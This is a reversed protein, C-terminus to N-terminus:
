DLLKLEKAQAIAKTRRNVKLKAFINKVHVKVTGIAIILLDAIEKNSLGAALLGLVEVERETLPEEIRDPQPASDEVSDPEAPSPETSGQLVCMLIGYSAMALLFAAQDHSFVGSALRNELYLVGLMMGHLMVPICLVSQPRYKAIYPNHILWSEEGAAYLVAEQTRFVYRIIGEPLLSSDNLEVPFPATPAEADVYVQLYLDDHHGTLLAGNSAGAHKMMANMIEALMADTDALNSITQTTQLIAAVDLNDMSAFDHRIDAAEEAQVANPDDTSASSPDATVRAEEHQQWRLLREELQTSKLYVEWKTYGKLGLELYYLATKRQGRSWFHNAALEGALSTTRIDDRERAERIAKDYLAEAMSLQGDARALEAQLLDHRPQFNAPSWEAWNGFRSINRIAYEKMQLWHESRPSEALLALTEYFLCEPLHPLHTAYAAHTNAERAWRVAEQHNGLLYHLQVKYTCYQFLSTAATDDQRIRSLFEEESFEADSFSDPAITRGQLAKVWGQYLFFNQRVFEDKTTALVTLYEAMTKSLDSLTARTFLSNVHAGMSYSAFVYDGSDLGFRLAKVLDDDGERADGAFQCLVGGYILYTLSKIPTVKYREALEIAIKALKMGKDYKGLTIGQLMGFSSYIAASAPTNGHKVSLEIARCVLLFFVKKDSFFTAAIIAYILNMAAIRDPDNMEELQVLKDFKDFPDQLLIDIRSEERELMSGEPELPIYINHERLSELGLAISELYKGQNVCQMIRIMQVRSREISNRAHATLVGIVRDSAEHNGSLYECEAKQAHLEFALEFEGSWAKADLLEIARNFYGLAVDYASSSKARHGADLNLRILTILEQGGTIKQSGRNLHNVIDFPLDGGLANQELLYKGIRVHIDQKSLDDIRNYALEQIHDHAFQFEGTASSLILGEAELSSWEGSMEDQPRNLVRAIFDPDFSSGVCAAVHLLEQSAAPLRSLKHEILDDIAYSPIQEIIRGLDWKWRRLKDNYRLIHDDQLRLWIQKFHFPNGGSQHYLLETLPFTDEAPRNLTEMVIRNLHTLSLPSLHIQRVTAAQDIGSGGPAYGPLKSQDMETDRYACVFMLYQCEPDCLLTHILQLSSFDAWQLDDIVLVLPHEKSALVQVFKRFVYFFRKQTEPAQLKESPSTDGLILGAEPIIETMVNANIGLAFKLKQRWREIQDKRQGLLHRMLGRFAQIIAHYPSETSIQEFKGTIYFFNRTLQQNRFVEEILSTKGIGAEGSVYVIETSGLCTSYFAQSLMSAEHERGYFGQEIFLTQQSFGIKDLDANLYGTNQYRQDPNKELLKMVISELGYPLVRGRDSLSAPSQTLHMYIWELPNDSQFPLAGALMEYFIVGLSYLDSREDIPRQMRGTNEPSCYPLSENSVGSGGPRLYGGTTRSVADGSDLLDVQLTTPHIGIREPRLDLHLTQQQHLKGVCTTLSRAIKVFVKPEIYTFRNLYERLTMGSVVQGTQMGATGRENHHHNGM